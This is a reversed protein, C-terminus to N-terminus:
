FSGTTEFRGGCCSWKGGCFKGVVEMGRLTMIKSGNPM